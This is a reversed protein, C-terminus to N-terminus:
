EESEHNNDNEGGPQNGEHDNKITITVKKPNLSITSGEVTCTAHLAVKHRGEKLGSLDVFIQVNEETLEAVQSENGTVTATFSITETEATLGGALNEFTVKSQDFAFEKTGTKTVQVVAELSPNESSLEVGDPLIPVLPITTDAMVGELYLPETEISEIKDLAANKGKLIITEPVSVIREVGGSDKGEMPVILPVSLLQALEASIEVSDHSLSVNYIRRGADNVAILTCDIQSTDAAVEGEAVVARAAAVQDVISEAGSVIVHSLSQAVTIPEEGNFEGEYTVLVPIEKSARPEIIVTTRDISQSEIEVKSPVKLQIRLLNEGMVVNSLDVTAVIDKTDINNIESRNGSLTVNITRDSVTSVAMNSQELAEQHLYKIPVERYTRTAEPNVEGIVFAWLAIAILLSLIMNLKKNELM